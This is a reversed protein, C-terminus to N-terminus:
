SLNGFILIAEEIPKKVENVPGRMLLYLEPYHKYLKYKVLSWVNEVLSYAPIEM